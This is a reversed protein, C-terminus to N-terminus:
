RSIRFFDRGSASKEIWGIFEGWRNGWEELRKRIEQESYRRGVDGPTSSGHAISNRESVVTDLREWVERLIPGPNGLGFIECFTLVQARKFNTGNNPFVGPQITCKASDALVDLMSLGTSWIATQPSTSIAQFQSYAAILKLGPKLRYNGVRLRQATELISRSLTKLLNEYAAYMLLIALGRAERSIGLEETEDGQHAADLIKEITVLRETLEARHIDCNLM